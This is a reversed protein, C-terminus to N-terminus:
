LLQPNRGGKESTTSLPCPASGLSLCLGERQSGSPAQPFRPVRPLPSHRSRARPVRGQSPPRVRRPRTGQEGGQVVRRRHSLSMWCELAGMLVARPSVPGNRVITVLCVSFTMPRPSEQAPSEGKPASNRRWPGAAASHLHPPLAWLTLEWCALDDGPRRAGTLVCEAWSAVRLKGTWAAEGRGM